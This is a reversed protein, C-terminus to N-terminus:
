WSKMVGKYPTKYNGINAFYLVAFSTISILFCAILVCIGLRMTTKEDIDVMFYSGEMDKWLTRWYSAWIRRFGAVTSM